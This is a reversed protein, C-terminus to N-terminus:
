STPQIQNCAFTNFSKILVHHSKGQDLILFLDVHIKFHNKQFISKSNKEIIYKDNNKEIYKM